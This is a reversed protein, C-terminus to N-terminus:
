AEARSERGASGRGFDRELLPLIGELAIGRSAKLLVVEGGELRERLIPYASQWDGAAIVDPRGTAGMRGAAQAFRGTAVVLDFGRGLAAGLVDDHLRDSETGLELMSGLVAVRRAAEQAALLDLAARASQPNSNYCDVVLTLSGLRRIEGRLAHTEAGSVGRAAEAPSVGLLEAIAMALMADAAAHRGVLQLSVPAGRWDFRYRGAADARANEPRLDADARESWGAVRLRACLGAAREALLAPEDGVLCRGGQALNRLLDLKEELVGEVSGLKELHSEGVTTVVGIDPRAIQALTHIEGPENTGMELVIAEAGSPVALLTLPLGVRNNRNGRTAYVRKATGLAAATLDKTTTKGSSGTIGVVPATIARRRHAALAGLAVLTDDVRYLPASTRDGVNTSWRHSVVAGRAGRSLADAVFDHGDFRDGVLAVYLQGDGVDRSDTSVGSYAVDSGTGGLTLADRVARDTWGTFAPASM